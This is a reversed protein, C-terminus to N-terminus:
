DIGRQNKRECFQCDIEIHKTREHYVPNVAIQMAANSDCHLMVPEKVTLGLEKLLGVLWVLESTVVAMSRYEAEASSRRTNPCAAWDADCYATIEEIAGKKLLLGMGPSGKIYRVVRLAADLHSQKPNQMFQSLVQVAFCIDPRTITLYILKGILKQYSVIGQLEEDGKVESLGVESILQLAYKRQNLVIGKDSRMLEIGLFYRLEGLDKLKFHKHLTAKAEEVLTTNSGTILLDDVYVLIIVLDADTKKTFLSHNYASQLYGEGILADTLKINWQRSAHKLGYLSKLLRCVQSEGQRYFGQPLAM